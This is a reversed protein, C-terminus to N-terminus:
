RVAVYRSVAGPVDLPAVAVGLCRRVLAPQAALVEPAGEGLVRGEGLLVLRDCASFAAAVDHTSVVVGRGAAALRRLLAALRVQHELDLYTGPEDLLLMPADQAVVMALYALQRQGGSLEAMRRDALDGMGVTALAAVVAERDAAGMVKSRGMRAYRGHSVLTAVTMDPVALSQPLFAVRRAREQHGLGRLGSGGLLVEGQCPVLGALSRLLTSKGCGNRGLIGTVMGRSLALSDARLVVKEGYGCALGTAAIGTGFADPGLTDSAKPVGAGNGSM